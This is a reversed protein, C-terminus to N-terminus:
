YPQPTDCYPCVIKKKPKPLYPCGFCSDEPITTRFLFTDECTFCFTYFGSHLDEEIRQRKKSEEWSIVLRKLWSKIKDLM